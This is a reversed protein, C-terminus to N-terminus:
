ILLAVTNELMNVRIGWGVWIESRGRYDWWSSGSKEKWTSELPARYSEPGLLEQKAGRRNLAHVLHYLSCTDGLLQMFLRPLATGLPATRYRRGYECSNGARRNFLTKPQCCTCPKPHKWNTTEQIQSWSYETCCKWSILCHGPPRLLATLWPWDLFCSRIHHHVEKRGSAIENLEFLIRLM